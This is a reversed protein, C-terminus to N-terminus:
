GHIAAAVIIALSLAFLGAFIATGVSKGERIDQWLDGPTMKDFILFGIGLVAMGVVAYLLTSLLQPVTTVM